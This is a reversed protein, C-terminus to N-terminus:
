VMLQDTENEDGEISRAVATNLLNPQYYQLIKM